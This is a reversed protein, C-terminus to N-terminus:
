PLDGKENGQSKARLCGVIISAVGPGQFCSRAGASGAQMLFFVRFGCGYVLEQGSTLTPFGWGSRAFVGRWVGQWVMRDSFLRAKLAQCDVVQLSFYFFPGEPKRTASIRYISVKGLFDPGNEEEKPRSLSYPALVMRERANKQARGWTRGLRDRGGSANIVGINRGEASRVVTEGRAAPAQGARGAGAGRWRGGGVRRGM